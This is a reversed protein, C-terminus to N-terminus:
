GFEISTRLSDINSKSYSLRPNTYKIAEHKPTYDGPGPVRATQALMPRSSKPLAHAPAENSKMTINYDGPGPHFASKESYVRRRDKGITGGETRRLVASLKM